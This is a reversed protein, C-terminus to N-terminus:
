LPLMKVVPKMVGGKNVYEYVPRMPASVLKYVYDGDRRETTFVYGENELKQVIAGLRSIYAKLCTNRSIEGYVKLQENVWTIQTAKM